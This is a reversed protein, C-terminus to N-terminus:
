RSRRTAGSPRVSATGPRDQNTSPTTFLWPVANSGVRNVQIPLGPATLEIIYTRAEVPMLVNSSRLATRAGTVKPESPEVVGVPMTGVISAAGPTGILTM